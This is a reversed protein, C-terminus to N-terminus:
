YISTSYGAQRPLLHNADTPIGGCTTTGGLEQHNPKVNSGFGKMGDEPEALTGTAHHKRRAWVVVHGSDQWYGQVVGAQDTDGGTM